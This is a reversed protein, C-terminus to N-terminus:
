LGGTIEVSAKPLWGQDGEPLAIRVWEERTELVVLEAGDHLRFRVVSARDTGSYAEVEPATVVAVEGPAAESIVLSGVAAALPVAATIAVWRTWESGRFLGYGLAACLVIMAAGGVLQLGRRSFGYHWFFLTRALPTPGPPALQDATQGRAFDLNARAEPDNPADDLSRRYAAIAGGLEGNRLRANGLNYHVARDGYGADVLSQFLEVAQEFRGGEYADNARVFAEVAGSRDVIAPAGDGEEPASAQEGALVVSPATPREGESAQAGQDDSGVILAAGAEPEVEQAGIGLAATLFVALALSAPAARRKHIIM